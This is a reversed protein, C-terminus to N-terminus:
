LIEGMRESAGTEELQFCLLVLQIQKSSDTPLFSFVQLDWSAM